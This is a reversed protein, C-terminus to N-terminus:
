LNSYFLWGNHAREAQHEETAQQQKGGGDPPLHPQRPQHLVPLPLGQGADHHLHILLARAVKHGVAEGVTVPAVGDAHLALGRPQANGAGQQAILLRRERHGVARRRVVEAQRLRGDVDALHRHLRRGDVRQAVREDVVDVRQAVSGVAGDLVDDAAYRADGDVFRAAYLILALVDVTEVDFVEVHQAPTVRQGCLVYPGLVHKRHVNVLVVLGLLHQLVHRKRLLCGEVQPELLPAHHTGHAVDRRARAPAVAGRPQPAQIRQHHPTAVLMEDHGLSVVKGGVIGGPARQQASAITSRCRAEEGAVREARGGHGGHSVTEVTRGHSRDVVDEAKRGVQREGHCGVIGDVHVVVVMRTLSVIQQVAPAVEDHLLLSGRGQFALLRAQLQPPLLVGGRAIQRVLEGHAARRGAIQEAQAAARGHALPTRRVDDAHAVTQFPYAALPAAHAAHRGVHLEGGRRAAVDAGGVGHGIREAHALVDLPQGQPGRSGGRQAADHAPAVQERHGDAYRGQVVAERATLVAIGGRRRAAVVAIVHAGGDRGGIRERAAVHRKLRTHGEGHVVQAVAVDGAPRGGRVM